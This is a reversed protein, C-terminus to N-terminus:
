GFTDAMLVSDQLDINTPWTTGTQRFSALWKKYQGAARLVHMMDYKDALGAIDLMQERTLRASLEELQHHVVRLTIEFAYYSDDPFSIESM